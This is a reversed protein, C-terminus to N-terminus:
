LAEDNADVVRIQAGMPVVLSWNADLFKAVATADAIGSAEVSTSANFEQTTLACPLLMRFM